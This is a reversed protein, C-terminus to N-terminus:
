LAVMMCTGKLKHNTFRLHPLNLMGSNLGKTASKSQSEESKLEQSQGLCFQEKFYRYFYFYLNLSQSM